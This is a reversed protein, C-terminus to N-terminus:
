TQDSPKEVHQAFLQALKDDPNSHPLKVPGDLARFVFDLNSEFLMAQLASLMGPSWGLDTYFITLEAVDRWELGATLGLAREVPKTDDLVPPYLLHFALPAEDRSLSDRLARRAYASNFHPASAYPSEIIVRKM